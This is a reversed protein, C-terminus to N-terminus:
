TSITFQTSSTVNSASTSTAITGSYTNSGPNTTNDGALYAAKTLMYVNGTKTVIAIASTSIEFKAIDTIAVGSPLKSTVDSASANISGGGFGIYSTLTSIGAADGFIYLKTSTRFGLVNKSNPYASRVEYPIGTYFPSYVRSPIYTDSGSSAVTGAYTNMSAGWAYLINTGSSDGIYLDSHFSGTFRNVTGEVCSSTFYPLDHPVNFAEDFHGNEISSDKSINYKDVLSFSSNKSFNSNSFSNNFSYFQKTNSIDIQAIIANFFVVFSIALAFLYKNFRSNSNANNNIIIREKLNSYFKVRM